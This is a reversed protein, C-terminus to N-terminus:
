CQAKRKRRVIKIVLGVSVFEPALSYMYNECSKNLILPDMTQDLKVTKYINYCLTLTMSLVLSGSRSSVWGYTMHMAMATLGCLTGIEYKVCCM